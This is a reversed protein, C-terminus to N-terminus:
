MDLTQPKGFLKLEMQVENWGLMDEDNNSFWALKEQNEASKIILKQEDNLDGYNKPLHIFVGCNRPYLKIDKITTTSGKEKFDVGIYGKVRFSPNASVGLALYPVKIKAENSKSSKQPMQWEKALDFSTISEPLSDGCGFFGLAVFILAIKVMLNKM